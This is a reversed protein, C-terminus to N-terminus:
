SATDVPKGDRLTASGEAVAAAAKQAIQEMSGQGRDSWNEYGVAIRDMVDKMRGSKRLTEVLTPAPEQPPRVQAYVEKPDIRDHKTYKGIEIARRLHPLETPDTM